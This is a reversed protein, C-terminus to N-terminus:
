VMRALVRMATIRATVAALIAGVLPILAVIIWDFISLRVAALLAIDPTAFFALGILGLLALAGGIAGGILARKLAQRALGGAIYSDRAGIMHLVEIVDQQVRLTSRTAFVVALVSAAGVTLVLGLSALSAWFASQRLGPLWQTHIDLSVGPIVMLKARLAELDLKGPTFDMDILRPIPLAGSAVIEGLWPTLMERSIDEPIADASLVGPTAKLAALAANLRQELAAPSASDPAPLVQVTASGSITRDWHNAAGSIALAAAAALMALFIMVAVIAPLLRGGEDARLPLAVGVALKEHLFKM